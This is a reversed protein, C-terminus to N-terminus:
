PPEVPRVETDEVNITITVKIGKLMERLKMVFQDASDDLNTKLRDIQEDGLAM